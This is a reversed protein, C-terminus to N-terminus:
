LNFFVSAFPGQFKFATIIELSLLGCVEPNSFDPRGFMFLAPAQASFLFIRQRGSM